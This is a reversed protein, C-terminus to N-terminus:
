RRGEELQEDECKGFLKQTTAQKNAAVCSVGQKAGVDTGRTPKNRQLARVNRRLRWTRITELSM